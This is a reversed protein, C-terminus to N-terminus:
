QLHKLAQQVSDDVMSLLIHLLKNILNNNNSSSSRTTSNIELSVALFVEGVV